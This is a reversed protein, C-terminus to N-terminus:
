LATFQSNIRHFNNQFLDALLLVEGHTLPSCHEFCIV